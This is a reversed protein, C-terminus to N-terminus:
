KKNKRRRCKGSLQYTMTKIIYPHLKVGILLLAKKDSDTMFTFISEMILERDGKDFVNRPFAGTLNLLRCAGCVRCVFEHATVLRTGQARMFRDGRYLEAGVRIIKEVVDKVFEKNNEMFADTNKEFYSDGSPKVALPIDFSANLVGPNLIYTFHKRNGCRPCFLLM